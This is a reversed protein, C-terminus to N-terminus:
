AGRPRSRERLYTLLPEASPPVSLDDFSLRRRGGKEEVTIEYSVTDRAEDPAGEDPPSFSCKKVLEGLLKGEGPEMAAPDLECGRVLGGFGGWERFTVIL